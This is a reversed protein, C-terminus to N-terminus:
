PKTGTEKPQDVVPSGPAVAAVGAQSRLKAVQVTQKEVAEREATQAEELAKEADGAFRYIASGSTNDFVVNELGKPAPLGANRATVYEAVQADTLQKGENAM